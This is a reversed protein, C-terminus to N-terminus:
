LGFGRASVLDGSRAPYLPLITVFAQQAPDDQASRGSGGAEGPARDRSYAEGSEPEFGALAKWKM